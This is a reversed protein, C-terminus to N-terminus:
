KGGQKTMTEKLVVTIHSTRKRIPHARGMACPRFRKLTPGSDVCVKSVYLNDVSGVEPNQAANAIASRLVRELIRAGRKTTFKLTGLARDVPQCRILDAVLRVKRPSIRSYKLIARTELL